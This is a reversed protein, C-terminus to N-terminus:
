AIVRVSARTTPTTLKPQSPKSVKKCRTVVQVKAKRKKHDTPIPAEKAEEEVGEITEIEEEKQDEGQGQTLAMPVQIQTDEEEEDEEEEEEEEEEVGEGFKEKLKKVLKDKKRIVLAIKLEM